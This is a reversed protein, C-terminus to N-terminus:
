IKTPQTAEFTPPPPPMPPQIPAAEAPAPFVDRYAVTWAGRTWPMVFPLGICCLLLGAASLLLDLMALGLVGGFNARAARASLKVAAWGKMNKDVVLQYAFPFIVGTIVFAIAYYLFLGALLEIGFVLEDDPLPSDGPYRKDAQDMWDGIFKAGVAFPIFPLNSVITVVISPGFFGFGKSLTNGFSAREGRMRGLM